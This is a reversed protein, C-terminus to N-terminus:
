KRMEWERAAGADLYWHVEGKAQLRQVPFNRGQPESLVRAIVPAKDVGTVLFLIQRAREIVPYTMSIRWASLKEVYVAAVLRDHVMLISTEPFLSATHGDSGVGLLILDLCIGKPLSSRLVQAYNDAALQPDSLETQIRLIQQPPIPVLDLLTGRAM